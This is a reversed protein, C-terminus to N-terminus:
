IVLVLKGRVHGNQSLDHAESIDALPFTRVEIKLKGAAALDAVEQLAASPDGEGGTTIRAGAEAAGFNAISVVQAPDGVLSTLETIPTAGVVDFVADIGGPALKEVRDVLGDGYRVPIAGLDRLFTDNRESATGIVRIGRAVAVQVAVSGVGGAAGDILLTQGSRIGLLGFARVTTEGAVGLGAAEAWDVSSPKPAWSSLIAFEASTGSGLGFVADGLRVGSVGPGIEDVVGAADLGPIWPLELPMMDKMYGQRIKWDMPNISTAHVVVRVEGPGPHPEPAEEM